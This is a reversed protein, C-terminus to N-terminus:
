EAPSAETVAAKRRRRPKEETPEADDPVIASLSLSPPLRDADIAIDDDAHQPTEAVPM